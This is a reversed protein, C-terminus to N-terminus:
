QFYHRIRDWMNSFWVGLNAFFGEVQEEDVSLDLGLDKLKDYLGGVQEQLDDVDLDLDAIKTMLNAIQAKEEPSISIDLKAATDDITKDIQEPDSIEEGVIVDKVAGILQEAKEQDGMSEGLQSTVVLENTAAEVNEPKLVEGTMTNYAKITGVLAATGSINFPGAVVVDANKVGATALSNQYMGTTCYSINKTTVKIGNGDGKEEVKVSSLARSGIVDASLYSDLYEHEEANTVTDVEYNSLDDETVGLLELVKAREDDKLDAGLAIYPQKADAAVPFTALSSLVMVGVLVKAINRKKM